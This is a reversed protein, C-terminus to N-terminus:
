TLHLCVKEGGKKMEEHSHLTTFDAKQGERNGEEAREM